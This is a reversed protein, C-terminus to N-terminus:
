CQGKEPGGTPPEVPSIIVKRFYGVGESWTRVKGEGQLALHVIRRDHPSLPAITVAGQSAKVKEALRAALAQLEERRRRRYDEVDVAVRGRRVAPPNFIRNVMYQIADLTRGRRGILLAGEPSKVRLLLHRDEWGATIEVAMGMRKLIEVLIKRAEGLDKDEERVSVRVRASRAGVFGLFGSNGHSLVEVAAEERSVGLETLARELAEEVTKGEAEVTRM